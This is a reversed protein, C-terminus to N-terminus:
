VLYWICWKWIVFVGYFVGYVYLVHVGPRCLNFPKRATKIWFWKKMIRIKLNTQCNCCVGYISFSFFLLPPFYKERWNRMERRIEEGSGSQRLTHCGSTCWGLYSICHELYWTRRGLYWIVIAFVLYNVLYIGFWWGWYYLHQKHNHRNEILILTCGHRRWCFYLFFLLYWECDINTCLFCCIIISPRM